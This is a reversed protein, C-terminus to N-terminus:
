KRRVADVMTLGTEYDLQREEYDNESQRTYGTDSWTAAPADKRWPRRRWYYGRFPDRTRNM